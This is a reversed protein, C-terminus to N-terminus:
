ALALPMAPWLSLGSVLSGISALTIPKRMHACATVLALLVSVSLTMAAMAPWVKVAGDPLPETGLKSPVSNTFKYYRM